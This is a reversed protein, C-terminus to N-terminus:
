SNAIYRSLDADHLPIHNLTWDEIVAVLDALNLADREIAASIANLRSIMNNHWAVHATLGPYNIQRMLKEEHGFHIRTHKYLAMACQTLQLKGQAALFENALQYFYQHQADMEANGTKYSDKWELSM